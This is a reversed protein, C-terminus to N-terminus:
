YQGNMSMERECVCVVSIFIKFLLPTWPLLVHVSENHYIQYIELKVTHILLWVLITDRLLYIDFKHNYIILHFYIHFYYHIPLPKNIEKYYLFLVNKLKKKIIFM